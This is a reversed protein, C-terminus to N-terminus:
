NNFRFHMVDGDAVVYEKGELRLKGADRAGAEGGSLAHGPRGSRQPLVCGCRRVRDERQAAQPPKGKPVAEARRAAPKRRDHLDPVNPAM